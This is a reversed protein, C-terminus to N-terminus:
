GHRRARKIKVDGDMQNISTSSKPDAAPPSSQLSPQLTTRWGIDANGDVIQQLLRQVFSRGSSKLFLKKM